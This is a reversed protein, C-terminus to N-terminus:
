PHQEGEATLLIMRSSTRFSTWRTWNPPDLQPWPLACSGAMNTLMGSERPSHPAPKVDCVWSAEFTM